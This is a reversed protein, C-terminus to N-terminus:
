DFDFRFRSSIFALKREFYSMFIFSYAASLVVGQNCFCRLSSCWICLSIFWIPLTVDFTLNNNQKEAKKRRSIYDKFHREKEGRAITEHAGYKM